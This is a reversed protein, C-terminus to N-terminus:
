GSHFPQGNLRGTFDIDEFSSSVTYPMLSPHQKVVEAAVGDGYGKGFGNIAVASNAVPKM